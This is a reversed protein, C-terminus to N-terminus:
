AARRAGPVTRRHIEEALGELPLIADALGAEAVLGPMGWVVSSERDQVIVGGGEARVRACGELGDSGMGTLVVSLVAAGYSDALSRLLPDFSPRCGHEPADDTLRVVARSGDRRVVTHHGGPALLVRGPEVRDGDRAERVPLGTRAALGEAFYGTFAAPMHQVIVIAAPLGPPVCGLLAALARPGGTSAGIAVVEARVGSTVSVRPAASGEAPRTRAAPVQDRWGGLARLRPIVETRLLLRTSALGGTPKAVVDNAGLWLAQMTAAAGERTLSSYVLVPLAPHRARLTTLMELGGMVPMELDLLVVDPHLEEVRELGMLGHAATGALELAPDEAISEAVVRRVTAADDVLLVRIRRTM